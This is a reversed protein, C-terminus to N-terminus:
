LLHLQHEKYEELTKKHLSEFRKVNVPSTALKQIKYFVPFSLLFGYISFKFPWSNNWYFKYPFLAIKAGLTYPYIVRRSNM